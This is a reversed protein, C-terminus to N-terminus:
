RTSNFRKEVSRRLYWFVLICVALTGLAVEAESRQLRPPPLTILVVCVATVVMLAQTGVRAWNRLKWLGRGLVGFVAGSLLLIASLAGRAPHLTFSRGAAEFDFGLDITVRHLLLAIGPLLFILALVCFCIAIATIGAPRRLSSSVLM